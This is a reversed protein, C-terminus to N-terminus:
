KDDLSVYEDKEDQLRKWRAEILEEMNLEDCYNMLRNIIEDYTEGKHGFKKLKERTEEDIRVTTPM